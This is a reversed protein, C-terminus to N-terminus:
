RLAEAVWDASSYEDYDDPSATRADPRAAVKLVSAARGELVDRKNQHGLWRPALRVALQLAVAHRFAEPMRAENSILRTYRVTLPGSASARLLTEDLRYGVTKPRVERLMACDGPLRYVYPLDEDVALGATLETEPLAVLASAFSWDGQELCLRLAFPYYFAADRAQATDDAFSSIPSLECLEFAEAAIGSTAIPSPVSM